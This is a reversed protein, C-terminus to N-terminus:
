WPLIDKTESQLIVGMIKKLFLFGGGRKYFVRVKAEGALLNKAPIFGLSVFMRILINLGLGAAHGVVIGVLWALALERVKYTEM